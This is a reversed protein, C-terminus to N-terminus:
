HVHPGLACVGSVVLPLPSFGEVKFQFTPGTGGSCCNCLLLPKLGMGSM